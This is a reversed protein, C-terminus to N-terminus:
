DQLTTGANSRIAKHWLDMQDSDDATWFDDAMFATQQGYGSERMDLGM